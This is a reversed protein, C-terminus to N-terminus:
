NEDFEITGIDNLDIKFHQFQVKGVHLVLIGYLFDILDGDLKYFSKKELKIYWIKWYKILYFFLRRLTM